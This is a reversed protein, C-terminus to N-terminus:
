RRGVALQDLHDGDFAVLDADLAVAGPGTAEPKDSLAPSLSRMRGPATTRMWCTPLPQAM